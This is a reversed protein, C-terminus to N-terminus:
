HCLGSNRVDMKDVDPGLVTISACVFRRILVM